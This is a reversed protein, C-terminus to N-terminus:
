EPNKATSLETAPLADEHATVAGAAQLLELLDKPAAASAAASLNEVAVENMVEGRHVAVSRPANIGIKVSDGRVELITITIDSGILITEGTKRTLVLM